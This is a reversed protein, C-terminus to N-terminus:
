RFAVIQPFFTNFTLYRAFLDLARVHLMLRVDGMSIERVGGTEQLTRCEPRGGVQHPSIAQSRNVAKGRCAALGAM